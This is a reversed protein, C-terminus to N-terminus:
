KEELLHSVTVVRGALDNCQLGVGVTNKKWNKGLVKARDDLDSGGGKMNSSRTRRKLDRTANMKKKRMRRKKNESENILDGHVGGKGVVLFSGKRRERERCPLQFDQDAGLSKNVVVNNKKHRRRIKRGLIVRKSKLV